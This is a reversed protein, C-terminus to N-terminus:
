FFDMRRDDPGLQLRKAIPSPDRGLLQPTALADLNAMDAENGFASPREVRYCHESQALSRCKGRMAKSLAM